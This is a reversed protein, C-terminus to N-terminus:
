VSPTSSKLHDLQNRKKFKIFYDSEKRLIKKKSGIACFVQRINIQSTDPSRVRKEHRPETWANLMLAIGLESSIM